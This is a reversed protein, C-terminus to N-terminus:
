ADVDDDDHVVSTKNVPVEDHEAGSSILRRMLNGILHLLSM